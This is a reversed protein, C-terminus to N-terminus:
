YNLTKLNSVYIINPPVMGEVLRLAILIDLKGIFIFEDAIQRVQSCHVTSHVIHSLQKMSSNGKKIIDLLRM